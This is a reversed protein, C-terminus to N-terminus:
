IGAWPLLFGKGVSLVPMGWNQGSCSGGVSQLWVGGARCLEVQIPWRSCWPAAEGLGPGLLHQAVEVLSGQGLWMGTWGGHPLEQRTLNRNEWPWRVFLFVELFSFGRSSMGEQEQSWHWGLNGKATCVISRQRENDVSDHKCTGSSLVFVSKRANFTNLLACFAKPVSPIACALNVWLRCEGPGSHVAFEAARGQGQPKAAQTVPWSQCPAAALQPWVAMSFLTFYCGAAKASSGTFEPEQDQLSAQAWLGQQDQDHIHLTIGQFCDAGPAPAWMRM